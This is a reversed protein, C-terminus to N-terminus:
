SLTVCLDEFPGAQVLRTRHGDAAFDVAVVSRAGNIELINSPDDGPHFGVLAAGVIVIRFSGDTRYTVTAKGSLDRRVREGTETNTIWGVLRGTVYEFRKNGREDRIVYARQENVPFEGALPFDCIEGAPVQFPPAPVSEWSGPAGAPVTDPAPAAAAASSMLLAVPITAIATATRRLLTTM